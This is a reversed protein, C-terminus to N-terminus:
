TGKVSQVQVYDEYLPTPQHAADFALEVKEKAAEVDDIFRRNYEEYFARKMEEKEEAM